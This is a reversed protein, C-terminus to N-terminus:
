KNLIKKITNKDVCSTEYKKIKQYYFNKHYKNKFEKRINNINYLNNKYYNYKYTIGNENKTIKKERLIIQYQNKYCKINIKDIITLNNLENYKPVVFLIPIISIIMILLKKM